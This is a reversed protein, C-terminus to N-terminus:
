KWQRVRCPEADRARRGWRFPKRYHSYRRRFIDIDTAHVEPIRFSAIYTGPVQRVKRTPIFVDEARAPVPLGQHTAPAAQTQASASSQAEQVPTYTSNEEKKLLAPTTDITAENATETPVAQKQVARLTLVARALTLDSRLITCPYVPEGAAALPTNDVQTAEM